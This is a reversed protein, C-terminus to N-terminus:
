ASNNFYKKTHNDVAAHRYGPTEMKNSLHPRLENYKRVEQDVKKTAAQFSEFTEYLGMEIKLIGNVREALANDYPCGDQTMSIALKSNELAKVYADCCYQIGRDSHHILPRFPYLRSNLAMQLARLCGIAKLNHSLNYGVIKRSYADTILDLYYFSNKSRLYTIDSVWIEEPMIAARRNVLDPWKKFLHNSNTTRAYRRKPKILMNNARLLSFLSDRGISLQHAKLAPKLMYHLKLAGLMPLQDRIERIM